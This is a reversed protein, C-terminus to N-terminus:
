SMLKTLYRIGLREPNIDAKQKPHAEIKSVDHKCYKASNQPKIRWVNQSPLLFVHEHRYFEIERKTSPDSDECYKKM